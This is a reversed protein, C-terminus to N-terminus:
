HFGVKKESKQIIKTLLAKEEGLISKNKLLYKMRVLQFQNVPYHVGNQEM